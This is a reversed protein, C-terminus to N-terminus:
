LGLFGLRGRLLLYGVFAVSDLIAHAVILPTVRKFRVFFLAFVVGMAINGIFGGFGQYLHYTGRLLASLGVAVPVGWSLEDFRTLLYGVAVVEEVVANQLASLTLIPVTWWLVPLAEPVVTTNIGLARSAGYLALGPLGIGAALGVGWGIDFGIRRNRWGMPDDRGNRNLLYLALFAPVVGFLIRVLQIALDLGPRGTAASPNLSTTQSSLPGSVLKGILDVVSWVASYGLSVGLMLTVEIGITRRPLKPPSLPDPTMGGNKRRVERTVLIGHIEQYRRVGAAGVEFIICRRVQRRDSPRNYEWTISPIM